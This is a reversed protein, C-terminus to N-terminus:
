EASPQDADSLDDLQDLLDLFDDPIEEAAVSEHLQRLAAAIPDFAM